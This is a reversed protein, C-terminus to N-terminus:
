DALAYLEDNVLLSYCSFLQNGIDSIQVVNQGENTGRENKTYEILSTVKLSL